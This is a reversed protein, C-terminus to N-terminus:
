AVADATKKEARLNGAMKLSSTEQLRRKHEREIGESKSDRKEEPFSGARIEVRGACCSEKLVMLDRGWLAHEAM